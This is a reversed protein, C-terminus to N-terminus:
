ILFKKKFLIKRANKSLKLKSSAFSTIFRLNKIHRYLSLFRVSSLLFKAPTYYNSLGNEIISGIFLLSDRNILVALQSFCISLSQKATKNYFENSVCTIKQQILM